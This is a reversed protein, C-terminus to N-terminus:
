RNSLRPSVSSGRESGSTRIRSSRWGFGALSRRMVSLVGATMSRRSTRRKRRRRGGENSSGPRSSVGTPSERKAPASSRTSPLPSSSKTKKTAPSSPLAPFEASSLRVMVSTGQVEVSRSSDHSPGSLSRKVPQATETYRVDSRHFTMSSVGRTPPVVPPSSDERRWAPRSPPAVRWTPRLLALLHGVVAVPLM